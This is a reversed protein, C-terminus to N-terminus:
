RSVTFVALGIAVADELFAAPSDKHFATALAARIRAGGLTGVMAGLIGTILGPILLNSAAGIAAGSFAGTVIRAGFQQPVTRSPTKPLQDTVLEGLALLTIIWPTATYGLFSLPTGELHLLHLHAAWSVAALGTFARLGSIIGILLALPYISM